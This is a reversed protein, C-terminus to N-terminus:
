LINVQDNIGNLQKMPSVPTNKPANRPGIIATMRKLITIKKLTTKTSTRWVIPVMLRLFSFSLMGVAKRKIMLMEPTMNRKPRVQSKPAKVILSAEKAKWNSKVM